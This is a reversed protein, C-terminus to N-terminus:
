MDLHKAEDGGAVLGGAGDEGPGDLVEGVVGGVLVGEACVEAGRVGGGGGAAAEGRVPFDGARVDGEQGGVDLLDEAQGVGGGHLVPLAGAVGDDEAVGDGLAGGDDDDVLPGAERRRAQRNVLRAAALGALARVAVALSIRGRVVARQVLVAHGLKVRAPPQHPARLRALVLKVRRRPRTDRKTQTM